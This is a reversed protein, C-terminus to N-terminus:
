EEIKTTLDWKGALVEERFRDWEEVSVDIGKYVDEYGPPPSGKIPRIYVIDPTKNDTHPLYHGNKIRRLWALYDVTSLSIRAGESNYIIVPSSSLPSPPTTVNMYKGEPPTQGTEAVYLVFTSKTV